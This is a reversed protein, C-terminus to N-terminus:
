KRKPAARSRGASAAPKRVPKRTTKTTGKRVAAKGVPKGAAVAKKTGVTKKTGVPKGASLKGSATRPSGKPSGTQAAPARVAVCKGCAWRQNAVTARLPLDVCRVHYACACKHCTLLDGREGGCQACAPGVVIAVPASVRVSDRVQSQMTSSTRLSSAKKARKLPRQSRGRSSGSASKSRSSSRARTRTVGERPAAAKRVRGTSAVRGKRGHTREADASLVVPTANDDELLRKTLPNFYRFQYGTCREAGDLQEFLAAIRPKSIGFYEPGSIATYVPKHQRAIREANIRRIVESWCKSPSEAIVQM